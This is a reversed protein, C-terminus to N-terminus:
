TFFIEKNKNLLVFKNKFYIIQKLFFEKDILNTKLISNKTCIDGYCNIRYNEPRLLEINNNFEKKTVEDKERSIVNWFFDMWLNGIKDLKSHHKLFKLLTKKSFNNINFISSFFMPDQEWPHHIDLFDKKTISLGNKTIYDFCWFGYKEQLDQYNLNQIDNDLSPINYVFFQSNMQEIAYQLNKINKNKIYIKPGPLILIKDKIDNICKIYKEETLFENKKTKSLHWLFINPDSDDPLTFWFVNNEYYKPHVINCIDYKISYNLPQLYRKYNFFTVGKNDKFSFQKFGNISLM